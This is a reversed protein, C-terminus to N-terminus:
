GSMASSSAASREHMQLAWFAPVVMGRQAAQMVWFPPSNSLSTESM